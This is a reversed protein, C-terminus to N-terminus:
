GRSRRRAQAVGLGALAAEGPDLHRLDQRAQTSTSGLRKMRISWTMSALRSARNGPM